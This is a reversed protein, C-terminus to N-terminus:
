QVDVKVFYGEVCEEIDSKIFDENFRSTDEICDFNSVPLKQSMAWGYLSFSTKCFRFLLNKFMNEHRKRFCWGLIICWKSSLCWLIQWFKKNWLKKLFRKTQMYDADVIDEMNLNSYFKEKETLTTEDFKEWDDM